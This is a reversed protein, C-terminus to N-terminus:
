KSLGAMAMLEHFRIESQRDKQADHRLPVTTRVMGPPMTHIKHNPITKIAAQIMKNVRM